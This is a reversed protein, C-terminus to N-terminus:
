SQRCEYHRNSISHHGFQTHEHLIVIEVKVYNECFITNVDGIYKYFYKNENGLILKIIICGKSNSILIIQIFLSSNLKKIVSIDQYSFTVKLFDNTIFNSLFSKFFLILTTLMIQILTNNTEYVHM